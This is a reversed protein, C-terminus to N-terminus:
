PYDVVFTVGEAVGGGPIPTSVTVLYSGPRATQAPSLRGSIEGDGGYSTEVLQGDFLVVSNPAYHRGTLKVWVDSGQPAIDPAIGEILPPQNYLHKSVPGFERFPATSEYSPNYGLEQVVGGKIVTDIAQTNHIDDLPNGTLVVVDGYKGAEVTGIFKDMGTWEAAWLTSAQLANMEPIGADVLLQMEHHLALGPTLAAATDTGSYVKGGAAVFKRLFEQVNAYGKRFEARDEPTRMDTWHYQWLTLAREDAPVYQLAPIGWLKTDELEFQDKRETVGKWEFTLTPNIYTKNAVLHQIMEDFVAPDMWRYLMSNKWGASLCTMTLLLAPALGRPCEYTVSASAKGEADTIAAIGVGTMHEIGNIGWDSSHLVDYSHSMVALGNAHAAETVAKTFEGNWSENLTVFIPADAGQKLSALVAPADSPVNVVGPGERIERGGAPNIGAVRSAEGGPVGASAFMRPGVIMGADIGHKLASITNNGGGMSYISTVGHNIFLEGEWWAYHVHSDILGPIIFKGAADVVQTGEPIAPAGASGSWVSAIIGDTILVSADAVPAAGTGDILTGGKVLVSEAHAQSALAVVIAFALRQHLPSQLHRKM